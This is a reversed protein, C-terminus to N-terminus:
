EGIWPNPAPQFDQWQHLWQAQVATNPCLAVVRQGLRRGIELGLVTKGAGPPLVIYARREGAAHRREFAQLALSQYRRFPRRYNTQALRAALDAARLTEM